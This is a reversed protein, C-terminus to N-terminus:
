LVIASIIWIRVNYYPMYKRLFITIYKFLKSFEIPKLIFNNCTKKRNKYIDWVESNKYARFLAGVLVIDEKSVM